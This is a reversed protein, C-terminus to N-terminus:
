TTKLGIFLIYSLIFSWLVIFFTIFTLISNSSHMRYIVFITIYISKLYTIIRELGQNGVPGWTRFCVNYQKM